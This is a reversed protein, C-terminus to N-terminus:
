DGTKLKEHRMIAFAMTRVGEQTHAQYVPPLVTSKASIPLPKPQAKLLGASGAVYIAKM